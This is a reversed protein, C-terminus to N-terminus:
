KYEFTKIHGNTTHQPGGVVLENGDPSLSIAKGFEDGPDDGDQTSGIKIWNGVSLEQYVYFKGNTSAPAGVAVRSGDASLSVSTGFEDGAVEGDLEVSLNWQNPTPTNWDYIRIHGKSSGHKPAGVAIRTGDDSMSVSTGFEDGNAVGSIDSGLQNWENATPNDWEYVQVYGKSSTNLPAGVVLFDGEDNTAVSRGFEDNNAKGTISNGKQSWTETGLSYNYVSVFGEINVTPSRGPAGGVVNLGDRSIAVSTGMYGSVVNNGYFIQESTWGPDDFKLIEVSGQGTTGNDFDRKGIALKTEAAPVAALAVSYGLEDDDNVGTFGGVEVWNPDNYRYVKAIGRNTGGDNYLPAGVALYKDINDDSYSVSHGFDESATGDIDSGFPLWEKFSPGEGSYTTGFNTGDNSNTSRDFITSGGGATDDANGIWNAVLNDTPANGTYLGSIESDTLVQTDYIRVDTMLGKYPQSSADSFHQRKGIELTGNGVHIPGNFEGSTGILQGSLYFRTNEGDYTFGIHQWEWAALDYVGEASIIQDNSGDSTFRVSPVAAGGGDVYLIEFQYSLDNKTNFNDSKSLLTSQSVGAAPGGPKIWAFVSLDGTIDLSDDDPVSIYDYNAADFYRSANLFSSQKVTWLFDTTGTLPPVGNDAAYVDVTYPSNISQDSDIVGTIRGTSEMILGSPLGSATFTLTDGDPDTTYQTIDLPDIAFGETDTQDPINITPIRNGIPHDGSFIIGQDIDDIGGIQVGFTLDVSKNSGISSSWSESDLTAGKLTWAMVPDGECSKLTVAVEKDSDGGCGAIMNALNGAEVTNLVANVSMTANVPFDVVRAYPFKSGLKSIPSRSLPISISASQVHFGGAGSVTSLTGSADQSGDFGPFTLIVDGPRLATPGDQGTNQPTNLTATGNIVTGNSPNIAPLSGTVSLSDIIGNQSNINAAEFSVSATPLSGVSLDVTYDSLYANGIGILSYSEGNNFTTADQGESSTIIYFNKGSSSELFGSVFQANGQTNFGLFYENRGNTLYYSFDFNVTPPELVLSDIRALNGFQNVDTRNITFGYNAGQVRILEEHDVKSLSSVDESVFLSESQYIVRNRSAM